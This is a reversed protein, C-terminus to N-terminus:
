ITLARDQQAIETDIHRQAGDVIRHQACAFQQDRDDVPHRAIQKGSIVDLCVLRMDSHLRGVFLALVM